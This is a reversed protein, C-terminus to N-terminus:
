RTSTQIASDELYAALRASGGTEAPSRAYRPM